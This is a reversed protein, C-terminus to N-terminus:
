SSLSPSLSSPTEWTDEQLSRILDYLAVHDLCTVTVSVGDTHNITVDLPYPGPSVQVTEITPNVAGLIYIGAM